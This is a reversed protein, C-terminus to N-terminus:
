EISSFIWCVLISACFFLMDIVTFPLTRLEIVIWRSYTTVFNSRYANWDLAPWFDKTMSRTLRARHFQLYSCMYRINRSHNFSHVWLRDLTIETALSPAPSCWRTSNWRTTSLAHLTFLIAKWYVTRFNRPCLSSHANVRDPSFRSSNKM